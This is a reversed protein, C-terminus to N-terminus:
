VHAICIELAITNRQQAKQTYNLFSMLLIVLVVLSLLLELLTFGRIKKLSFHLKQNMKLLAM